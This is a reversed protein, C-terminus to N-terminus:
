IKKLAYKIFGSIDDSCLLPIAQRIEPIPWDWWKIRLMDRIQDESMRKKIERAPNGGVVTYPTVNKVVHSNNAIVAGDGLTIGSMLTVNDAIWVDNGITVTRGEKPHTNNKYPFSAQNIYGFPYTTVFDDRHSGGLYIKINCGLSCFSGIILDADPYHISLRDHGFTYRGVDMKSM